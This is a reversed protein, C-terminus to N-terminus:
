CGTLVSAEVGGANFIRSKFGIQAAAASFLQWQLLKLANVFSPQETHEEAGGGAM